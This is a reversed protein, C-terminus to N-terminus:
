VIVPIIYLIFLNVLSYNILKYQRVLDVERDGYLFVRDKQWSIGQCANLSDTTISKGIKMGIKQQMFSMFCLLVISVYILNKNAM